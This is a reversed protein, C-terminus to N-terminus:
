GVFGLTAICVRAENNWQRIAFWCAYITAGTTFVDDVILISPVEASKLKEGVSERVSFAGHVNQAKQDMTLKAQSRTRRNRKLLNPVMTCEMLRAMEAGIIEAQNYGRKRRRTWHLPVPVIYDIKGMFSCSVLREALLHAFYRGCALDSHYKLRQTIKRYGTHSLYFFLSVCNVYPEVHTLIEGPEELHRQILLNFRDGMANREQLWFYTLPLDSRCWVCLHKEHRLLTRGCVVCHRPLLIDGAAIMVDALCNSESIHFVKGLM